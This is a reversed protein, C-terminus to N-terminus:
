GLRFSSDIGGDHRRAPNRLGSFGPKKVALDSDRDPLPKFQALLGPSAPDEQL